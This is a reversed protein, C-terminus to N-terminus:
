NSSKNAASNKAKIEKEKLEKDQSLKREELDLKRNEIANQNVLKDIELQDPVRNNNIDQDRQFGFSQIEAVRVKGEIDLMKMEKDHAQEDEQLEQQAQIKQQEIQAQQQQIADERAERNSESQQLERELQQSTSNAKIIKIADSIKAKDSQIVFQVLDNMKRFIEAEKGSDAVFIGVDVNQLEDPTIRLTQVSMDDLVYQKSIPKDKWEQIAVQLLSELGRGWIKDHIHFMPETISTSQIISQQANTVAEHPTSQGERQKTVGAVDAIENDLANMLQIYNLIHQM